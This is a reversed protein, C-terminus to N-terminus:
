KNGIQSGSGSTTVSRDPTWQEAGQSKIINIRQAVLDKRKQELEAKNQNIQEELLANARDQSDTDGGGDFIGMRVGGNTFLKMTGYRTM